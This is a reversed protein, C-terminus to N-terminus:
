TDASPPAKRREPHGRQHGTTGKGRKSAPKGRLLACATCSSATSPPSATHSPCRPLRPRGRAGPEPPLVASQEYAELALRAAEADASGAKRAARHADSLAQWELPQFLHPM